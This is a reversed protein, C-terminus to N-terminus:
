PYRRKEDITEGRGLTALFQGLWVLGAPWVGLKQASGMHGLNGSDVFASGWAAAFERAREFSVRDDDRSAVVMSPFPLRRLIMPGFGRSPSASAGPRDRDTPAVLFAGAVKKAAGPQDFSWRMTLSTGLSHAILLVPRAAQEVAATLRPAWEAYDPEDWDRQEVRVFDPFAREWHTHWHDPGSGGLGPLILVSVEKLDRVRM